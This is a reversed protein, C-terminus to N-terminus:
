SVRCKHMITDVTIIGNRMDDKDQTYDLQISLRDKINSSQNSRLLDRLTSAQTQEYAVFLLLMIEIM